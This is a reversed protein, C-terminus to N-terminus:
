PKQRIKQFEKKLAVILYVEAMGKAEEALSVPGFMLGNKKLGVNLHHELKPKAYV